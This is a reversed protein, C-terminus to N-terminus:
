TPMVESGGLSAVFTVMIPFCPRVQLGVKRNSWAIRFGQEQGCSHGAAKASKLLRLLEEIAVLGLPTLVVVQKQFTDQDPGAATFNIGCAAKALCEDLLVM